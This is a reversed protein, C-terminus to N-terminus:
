DLIRFVGRFDRGTEYSEVEINECVVTSTGIYLTDLFEDLVDEQGCSVVSVKNGRAEVFGEVGCHTASKQVFKLAQAGKKCEFQIKICKRM